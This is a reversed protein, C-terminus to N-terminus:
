VQRKWGALNRSGMVLCDIQTTDVFEVLVNCAKSPGTKFIHTTVNQFGSAKIRAAIKTLDEARNKVTKEAFALADTCLMTEEWGGKKTM